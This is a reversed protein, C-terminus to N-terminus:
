CIKVDDRAHIYVRLSCNFRCQVSSILLFYARYWNSTVCNMALFLKMDFCAVCITLM